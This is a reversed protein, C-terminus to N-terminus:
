YSKNFLRNSSTIWILSKTFQARFELLIYIMCLKVRDSYILCNLSNEDKILLYGYDM